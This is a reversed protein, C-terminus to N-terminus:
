RKKRRPTFAPVCATPASRPATLCIVAPFLLSLPPAPSVPRLTPCPRPDRRAQLLVVRTHLVVPFVESGRMSTKQNSKPHSPAPSINTNPDHIKQIKKGHEFLYFNDSDSPSPTLETHRSPNGQSVSGTDNRQDARAAPPPPTLIPNGSNGPGSMDARDARFDGLPGPSIWSIRSIWSYSSDEM